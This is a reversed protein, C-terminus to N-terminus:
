NDGLTKQSAPSELGFIQMIQGITEVTGPPEYIEKHRCYRWVKTPFELPNLKGWTEPSGQNKKQM